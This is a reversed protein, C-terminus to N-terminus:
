LGPLPTWPGPLPPPPKDGDWISRDPGGIGRGGASSGSPTASVGPGVLAQGRPPRAPTGGPPCTPTEPNGQAGATHVTPSPRPPAQKGTGFRGARSRGVGARYSTLGAIGRKMPRVTNARSSPFSTFRSIRNMNTRENSDAGPHRTRYCTSVAWPAVSGLMAPRAKSSPRQCVVELHDGQGGRSLGVGAGLGSGKDFGSVIGAVPM